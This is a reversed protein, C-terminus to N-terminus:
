QSTDMDETREQDKKRRGLFKLTLKPNQQQGYVYLLTKIRRIRPVSVNSPSRIFVLLRPTLPSQITLSPGVDTPPIATKLRM